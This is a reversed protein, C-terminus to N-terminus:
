NQQVLPTWTWKARRLSWAPDALDNPFRPFLFLKYLNQISILSTQQIQSMKWLFQGIKECM